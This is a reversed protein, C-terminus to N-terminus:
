ILLYNGQLIHKNMGDMGTRQGFFQNIVLTQNLDMVTTHMAHILRHVAICDM